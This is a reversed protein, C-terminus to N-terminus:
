ICYFSNVKSFAKMKMKFWDTMSSRILLVPDGKRMTVLRIMGIVVMLVQPGISTVTLL